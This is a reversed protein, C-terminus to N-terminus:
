ELFYRIYHGASADDSCYGTDDNVGNQPEILTVDGAESEDDVSLGSESSDKVRKVIKWFLWCLGHSCSRRLDTLFNRACTDNTRTTNRLFAGLDAPLFGTVFVFADVANHVTIM